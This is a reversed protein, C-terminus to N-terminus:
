KSDPVFNKRALEKRVRSLSEPTIGLYSAIMWQPVRLLLDPYMKIFKMYREEATEALLSNIRDQLSKIHKQLLIDSKELSDPFEGILKNIFDPHLLLVESDEVAEIYYVSKENFYLSSRDSTLWSEPAFQIIHEKGNKDISYMKLLGKEVFYIYRCVEGYQLLFQNKQVKKVEYHLSCMNVKELPVNLVKALYNNINTM